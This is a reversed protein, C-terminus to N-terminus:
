ERYYRRVEPENLFVLSLIGMVCNPIDLNIINVIQMIAITRPATERHAERGLLASGKIIALIGLVLSYYTGPWAACYCTLLLGVATLVALIGGVLTMVAIAQVKGPPSQAPYIREPQIYDPEPPEPLPPPLPAPSPEEALEVARYELTTAPAVPADFTHGCRPCKVAHGLMEEPVKLQRQCGPCGIIEPM